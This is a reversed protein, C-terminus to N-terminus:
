KTQKTLQARASCFFLACLAFFNVYEYRMQDGLSYYCRGQTRLLRARACADAVGGSLAMQTDKLALEHQQLNCLARSRMALLGSAMEGLNSLSASFFQTLIYLFAHPFIRAAANAGKRRKAM